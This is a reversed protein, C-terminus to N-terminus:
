GGGEETRKTGEEELVKIYTSNLIGDVVSMPGDRDGIWEGRRNLLLCVDTAASEATRGRLGTPYGGGLGGAVCLRVRASHVGPDAPEPQHRLLGTAQPIQCPRTARHSHTFAVLTTAHHPNGTISHSDGPTRENERGREREPQVM